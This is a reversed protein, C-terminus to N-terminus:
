KQLWWPKDSTRDRGGFQNDLAAQVNETNNNYESQPYMWRYPLQTGAARRLHPWGTRLAEYYPLWVGGQLFTPLYKQMAIREIKWDKTLKATYAVESGQLYTDAAADSLFAAADAAYTRYFDFSAKVASEYYAKDDGDIWGRVVGEALILQQETYGMLIMPENTANKYYREAPKSCLGATAKDNVQSYPVAPDGGDYATFDNVAKGEQEAKPTRTAIAFLRPDKRTAFSAVYTSDMFRGSGFDSDNFYPYRNDAQDNYVLQGNDAASEMLPCNKVIDAFTAAINIGGVNTKNSLSMLIRLRYANILKRWRTLDGNYIIDGSIIENNGKLLNDAEALENLIGELVKEQSDYAPRYIAATEGKLADSYPIDGFNMTLRYFYNARFFHALAQYASGQESMEMMKTVDRLNDYYDFDGRTWKYVQYASEGSTLILQKTAHCASSGTQNFATYVIGTLLLAPRTTTPNNPDVNMKEMDICSACIGTALLLSAIYTIHKRKM